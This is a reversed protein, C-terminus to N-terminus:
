SFNLLPPEYHEYPDGADSRDGNLGDPSLGRWEREVAYRGFRMEILKFHVYAAEKDFFEAKLAPAM